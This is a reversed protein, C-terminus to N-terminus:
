VNNFSNTSFLFILKSNFSSCNSFISYFNFAQNKLDLKIKKIIIEVILQQFSVIIWAIIIFFFLSNYFISMKKVYLLTKFM